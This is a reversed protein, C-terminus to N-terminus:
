RKQELVRRVFHGASLSRLLVTRYQHINEPREWGEKPWDNVTARLRPIDLRDAVPGCASLPDIEMLISERTIAEHWDAFQLGKRHEDLVVAPLRSRMARRLLSSPVGNRLYQETPVALCFEVLRRDSTPDRRDIGWGALAGMNENGRDIRRLWELRYGWSDSPLDDASQRLREFGELQSKPLPARRLAAASSAVRRREIRALLERPLWHGMTQRLVGAWSAWGLRTLHTSERLWRALHGSAFMEALLARGNYSITANGLEGSLMVRIGRVQACAYIRAMWVANCANLVPKDYLHINSDLDALPSHGDSRLVVHDINDYLAAVAAAHSSEDGFRNVSPRGDYDARPAATFAVVRRGHKAQLRAAAATVSTSDLGGSLQSAVVGVGRLRSSVAQDLVECLAEAYEEPKKLLLVRRQPNWHRRVVIGTRTVLVLHGPQVREIGEYFSRPGSVRVQAIRHALRTLDPAYPVDPLAHLGKPMSAFAFLGKARHFHLPREGLPDRALLLRQKSSEWFAFAYDGILRDPAREGWRELAAFLITSDAVQRAWKLPLCLAAVLEDRNDLRVDAALLLGHTNLPGSDYIDEPLLRSLCRGVTIEGYNCQAQDDAGYISLARLMRGCDQAVSQAAVGDSWRWLGAIATM